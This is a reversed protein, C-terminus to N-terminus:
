DVRLYLSRFPTDWLAPRLGDLLRVQGADGLVIAQYRLFAQDFADYVAPDHADAPLAPDLLVMRDVSARGDAIHDDYRDVGWDWSPRCRLVLCALAVGLDAMEGFLPAAADPWVPAHWPAPDAGVRGRWSRWRAATWGDLTRCFLGPEPWLAQLDIGDEALRRALRALRQPTEAALRERLAAEGPVVWPPRDLPDPERGGLRM